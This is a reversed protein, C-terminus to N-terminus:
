KEIKQKDKGPNKFKQRMAEEKIKKVQMQYIDQTAPPPNDGTRSLGSKLYDLHRAHVYDGIGAM